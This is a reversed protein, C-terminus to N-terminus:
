QEHTSIFATLTTHHPLVRLIPGADIKREKQSGARGSFVTQLM